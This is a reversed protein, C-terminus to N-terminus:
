STDTTHIWLSVHITPMAKIFEIKYGIHNCKKCVKGGFKQELIPNCFRQVIVSLVDALLLLDQCTPQMM